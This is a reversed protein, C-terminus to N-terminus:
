NDKGNRMKRIFAPVNVDDNRRNQQGNGGGQVPQSNGGNNNGGNNGGFQNGNNQQGNNQNYHQNGNNQQSNNQQGNNQQGYPQSASNQNNGNNNGSPRSNNNLNNNNYGQDANSNNYSYNAPDRRSDDNYSRGALSEQEDFRRAYDDKRSYRGVPVDSSSEKHKSNFSEIVSNVRDNKVELEADDKVKFGTAILTIIIKDGLREDVGAGIIINANPDVVTHVLESASYVEDLGMDMGGMINIIVGSAGVISTELLPSQVAQRVATIARNEGVGEGVGLHSLGTNRIVSKVDAFDLNIMSPTVILDSIGQIGKRLVEDAEKFAKVIPTGKPLVEMLMDNPIILLSDVYERLRQIGQLANDMRRRGEFGFPKTVVAVTLIGLEQAISAIIPAAGTGTGGGMGATIFLLDVGELLEKLEARSEEAAKAGVNPDAGAGLGKTLKEGIQLTNPADSICLAQKDTNVAIFEASTIGSEIMRNVANGGGGGVGIVKIKVVGINYLENTVM